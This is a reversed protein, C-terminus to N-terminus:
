TDSKARHHIIQKALDVGDQVARHAGEGGLIPTAHIADGILLVRRNALSKIQESTGLATRM